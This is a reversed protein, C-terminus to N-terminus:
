LLPTWSFVVSKHYKVKMILVTDHYMSEISLLVGNFVIHWADALTYIFIFPYLIGGYFPFLM